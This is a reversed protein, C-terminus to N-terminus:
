DENIGDMIKQKNPSPDAIIKMKGSKGCQGCCSNKDNLFMLCDWPIDYQNGCECGVLVIDFDAENPKWDVFERKEEVIKGDKFKRTVLEGPKIDKPILDTIKTRKL